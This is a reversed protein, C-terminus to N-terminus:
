GCDCRSALRGFNRVVDNSGLDDGLIILLHPSPPAAASLLALASAVFM